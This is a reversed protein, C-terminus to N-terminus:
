VVIVHICGPFDEGVRYHKHTLRSHGIRLRTLIVDERRIYSHM